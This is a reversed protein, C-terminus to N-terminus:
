HPRVGAASAALHRAHPIDCLRPGDRKVDFRARPSWGSVLQPNNRAALHGHAERSSGEYGSTRRREDLYLVYQDGTPPLKRHRPSTLGVTIAHCVILVSGTMAFTQPIYLPYPPLGGDGFARLTPDGEFIDGQHRRGGLQLASLLEAPSAAAEVAAKDAEFDVESRPGWKSQSNYDGLYRWSSGARQAVNKMWQCQGYMANHARINASACLAPNDCHINVILVGSFVMMGLPKSYIPAALDPRYLRLLVSLQMQSWMSPAKKPKVVNFRVPIRSASLLAYFPGASELAAATMDISSQQSVSNHPDMSFADDLVRVHFIWPNARVEDAVAGQSKGILNRHHYSSYRSTVDPATSMTDKMLQPRWGQVARVVKPDNLLLQVYVEPRLYYSRCVPRLKGDRVKFRLGTCGSKLCQQQQQPAGSSCCRLDFAFPEACEGCFDVPIYSTKRFDDIRLVKKLQRWLRPFHHATKPEQALYAKHHLKLDHDTQASKQKLRIRDRFANVCARQLNLGESGIRTAWPATSGRQRTKTHHVMFQWFCLAVFLQYLLRFATQVVGCRRAGTM